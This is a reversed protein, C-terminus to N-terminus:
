EEDEEKDQQSYHEESANAPPTAFLDQAWSDRKRVAEAENITRGFLSDIFGQAPNDLAHKPTAAYCIMNGPHLLEFPIPKESLRFFLYNRAPQTTGAVPPQQMMVWSLIMMGKGAVEVQQVNRGVPTMRGVNPEVSYRPDAGAPLGPFYVLSYDIMGDSFQAPLPLKNM